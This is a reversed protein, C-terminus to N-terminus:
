GQVQGYPFTPVEALLRLGWGEPEANKGELFFAGRRDAMSFLATQNGLWLKPGALFNGTKM